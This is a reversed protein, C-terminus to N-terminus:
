QGPGVIHIGSFLYTTGDLLTIDGDNAFNPNIINLHMNFQKELGGAKKIARMASKRDHWKGFPLLLNKDSKISLWGIAFYVCDHSGWEFSTTLKSTIYEPLTM